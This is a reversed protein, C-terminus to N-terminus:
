AKKRASAIRALGALDKTLQIQEFRGDSNLLAVVSDAIIPSLEMALLGGPILREAAQPILRAIIESGHPGGVLALRPEHDKVQPALGAMESEGIYPPNSVVLAIEPKAPLGSLLDGQLFRVNKELHLQQANEQAVALAEPSIDIATVQAHPAHKAIALAVAGSGTGVDVVQPQTSGAPYRAKIEDLAAIVLFETEPRPILVAPTVKLPLSYFERQGVLYAVPVGAARQKVLGRFKARIEEGVEEAFAMYLAIRECGRANALLVEADLRPSEAGNKKLFDTTWELLKGVTWQEVQSM